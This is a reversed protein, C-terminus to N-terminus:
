GAGRWISRGVWVALTGFQATSAAILALMVKDTIVPPGPIVWVRESVWAVVVFIFVLFNLALFGIVIREVHRRAAARDLEFQRISAAEVAPGIGAKPLDELPVIPKPERPRFRSSDNGSM